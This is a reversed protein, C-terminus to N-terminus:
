QIWEIKLKKEVSQIKEFDRDKTIVSLNRDLAISAILIDIAGVSLGRRQLEESTRIARLYDETRPYIIRQGPRAAAPHEVVTFITVLGEAGEIYASTDIISPAAM